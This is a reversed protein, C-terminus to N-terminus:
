SNGAAAENIGAFNTDLLWRMLRLFANFPLMATELRNEEDLSQIQIDLADANIPSISVGLSRVLRRVGDRSLEEPAQQSKPRATSSPSSESLDRMLRVWYRFVQRFEETEGDSFRLEKQLAM